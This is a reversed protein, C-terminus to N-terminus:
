VRFLLMVMILLLMCAFILKLRPEPLGHALRVGLPVMVISGLALSLGVVWDVQAHAAYTVMAVATGPVIMSLALAQARTQSYRLFLTLAPVVIVSGGVGFLGGTLGGVMGLVAFWGPPPTLATQRRRRRAMIRPRRSSQHFYFLAICLIFGAYCQRLLWADLGLAIRAGVWTFIISALGGLAAARLDIRARQHYQRISLLVAPLVMVLATGQALHQDMGLVLGLLPIALLGGGIGLLGGIFGILGGAALAGLIFLTM